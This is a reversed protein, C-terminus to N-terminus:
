STFNQLYKDYSANPDKKNKTKQLYVSNFQIIRPSLFPVFNVWLGLLLFERVAFYGAFDSWIWFLLM